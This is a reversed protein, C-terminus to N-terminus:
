KKGGRRIRIKHGFNYTVSATANDIGIFVKHIGAEVLAGNPENYFKDYETDYVGAGLNFEMGWHPLHPFRFKYGIGLGGGVAPRTGGADQIRYDGNLALNYWGIGAHVGAYLGHAKAFHYRLEPQVVIGRFKVDHVFYNVGGSYYVPINLSWRDTFQYEVAGNAILMLWGIGNTKVTLPGEQYAFAKKLRSVVEIQEEELEVEVEDLHIETEQLYKDPQATAENTVHLSDGKSPSVFKSLAVAEPIQVSKLPEIPHIKRYATVVVEAYRLKSFIQREMLRWVAGQELHSLELIRSDITLRKGDRRTTYYLYEPNKDLISIVGGKNPVDTDELLTKIYSVPFYGDSSNEVELASDHSLITSKLANQRRQAILTNREHSGELSTVGSVSIKLAQCDTDLSLRSIYENMEELTRANDRYKPDITTSGVRFEVRFSREVQQSYAVLTSLIFIGFCMWLARFRM